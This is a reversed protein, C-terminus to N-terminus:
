IREKVSDSIDVTKNLHVKKLSGGSAQELEEESLEQVKEEETELKKEDSM